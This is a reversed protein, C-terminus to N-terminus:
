RIWGWILQEFEIRTLKHGCGLVAQLEDSLENISEQLSIYTPKDLRYFVSSPVRLAPRARSIFSVVIDDLPAHLHRCLAGLEDAQESRAWWDKLVLNLFKQAAGFSLHQHKVDPVGKKPKQKWAFPVRMILEIQAFFWADFSPQDQLVIRCQGDWDRAIELLQQNLPGHDRESSSTLHLTRKVTAFISDLRWSTIPWAADKARVLYAKKIETAPDVPDVITQKVASEM